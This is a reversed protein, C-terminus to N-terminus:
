CVSRESQGAAASNVTGASDVTGASKAPSPPLTAAPEGPVANLEIKGEYRTRVEDGEMWDYMHILGRAGRFSGTGGTIPHTCQGAVLRKNADFSAWYIYASTMTGRPEHRGCKKNFNRDLCGVFTEVGSEAYLTPVDHLINTRFLTWKGVLDGEMTYLGKAADDTIQMGGVYVTRPERPGGHNASGPDPTAVAAPTLGTCAIGVALGVLTATKAVTRRM